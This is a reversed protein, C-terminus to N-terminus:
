RCARLLRHRHDAEEAALRGIQERFLNASKLACL